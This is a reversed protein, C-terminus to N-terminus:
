QLLDGYMNKPNEVLPLPHVFALSLLAALLQRQRAQKLRQHMDDM